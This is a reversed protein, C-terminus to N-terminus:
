PCACKDAEARPPGLANPCHWVRGRVEPPPLRESVVVCLFVKQEEEEGTPRTVRVRRAKAVFGEARPWVLAKGEPISVGGISGASGGGDRNGGGGGAAAAEAELQRLYADQEARGQPDARAKLFEQLLRQGEPSELRARLRAAEQQPTPPHSTPYTHAPTVSEAHAPTPSPYTHTHM